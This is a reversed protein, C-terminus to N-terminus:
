ARLEHLYCTFLRSYTPFPELYLYFTLLGFFDPDPKQISIKEGSRPAEIDSLM